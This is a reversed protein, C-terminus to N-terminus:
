ADATVPEPLGIAHEGSVEFYTNDSVGDTVSEIYARVADVSDAEWLCVATTKDQSPCFQRAHVGQPANLAVGPIDSFFGEQDKVKHQAVVYM